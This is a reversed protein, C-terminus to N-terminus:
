GMRELRPYEETYRRWGKPRLMGLFFQLNYLFTNM